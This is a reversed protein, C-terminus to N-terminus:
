FIDKLDHFMERLVNRESLRVIANDEFEQDTLSSTITRRDRVGSLFSVPHELISLSPTPCVHLVDRAGSVHSRGLCVLVSTGLVSAVTVRGVLREAGGREPESQHSSAEERPVAERFLELDVNIVVILSGIRAGSIGARPVFTGGDEGCESRTRHLVAASSM